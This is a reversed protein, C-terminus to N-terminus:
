LCTRRNEGACSHRRTFPEDIGCPRGVCAPDRTATLCMSQKTVPFAPATGQSGVCRQVPWDRSMEHMVACSQLPPAGAGGTFSNVGFAHFLYANWSEVHGPHDNEGPRYAPDGGRSRFASSCDVGNVPFGRLFSVSLGHRSTHFGLPPAGTGDTISTWGLGHLARVVPAPREIRCLRRLEERDVDRLKRFFPFRGNLRRRLAPARGDNM